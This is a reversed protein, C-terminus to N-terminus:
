PDNKQAGRINIAALFVQLIMLAFAGAHWGWVLWLVNSLLFIWFGFSRKTKIQSGVLWSAAATLIMAPWQIFDAYDM